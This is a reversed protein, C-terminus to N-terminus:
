HTVSRCRDGAGGNSSYHTTTEDDGGVFLGRDAKRARLLSAVKPQRSMSEACVKPHAADNIQTLGASSIPHRLAVPASKPFASRHVRVGGQAQVSVRFSGGSCSFAVSTITLWWHVSMRARRPRYSM